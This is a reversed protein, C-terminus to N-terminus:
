LGKVFRHGAMFFPTFKVPGIREASPIITIEIMTQKFEQANARLSCLLVV